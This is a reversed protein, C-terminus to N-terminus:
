IDNDTTITHIEFRLQFQILCSLIECMENQKYDFEAFNCKYLPKRLTQFNSELLSILLM